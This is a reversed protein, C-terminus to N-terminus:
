RKKFTIGSILKYSPSSAGFVSRVYLKVDLAVAVLGVEDAYLANNRQLRANALAVAASVVAQNVNTANAKAISLAPVQLDTENPTYAPVSSVLAILEVFHDLLMDYSRQSVSISNENDPNVNKAREGRIKRLITRADDMLQDSVGASSGLANVIRTAFSPLGKFSIQRANVANIYPQKATAVAQHITNCTAHQATLAPIALAPNSPNYTPGYGTCFQILQNFNAINKAHGSESTSVM